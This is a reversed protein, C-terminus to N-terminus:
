LNRTTPSSPLTCTFVSFVQPPHGRLFLVYSVSATEGGRWGRENSGGSRRRKVGKRRAGGGRDRSRSATVGRRWSPNKEDGLKRRYEGRASFASPALGRGRSWSSRDDGFASGRCRSSSSSSLPTFTLRPRKAVMVYVRCRVCLRTRSNTLCISLVSASRMMM